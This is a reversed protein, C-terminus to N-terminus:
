SDTRTKAASPVTIGMMDMMLADSFYKANLTDFGFANPGRWIPVSNPLVLGPTMEHSASRQNRKIWSLARWAPERWESNQELQSLRLWCVAMQALGKVCVHRAATTWGDDYAGSLSGLESLRNRMALAAKRAARLAREDALLVSLEILSHIIASLLSTAVPSGTDSFWGCPTQCILIAELNQQAQRRFLDDGTRVMLAALAQAVQAQHAVSQIPLAKLSQGSHLAHDLCDTRGTHVHGAILGHIKGPTHEDPQSMLVDLMAHARSGLSPWALCYAAPLCTEILWGTTETNGPLWGSKFRWGASVSGNGTMDQAHCLWELATRLHTRPDQEPQDATGALDQLVWRLQGARDARAAQNRDLLAQQYDLKMM